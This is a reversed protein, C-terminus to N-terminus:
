HIAEGHRSGRQPILQDRASGRRVREAVCREAVERVRLTLKVSENYTDAGDAPTIAVTAVNTDATRHCYGELHREASGSSPVRWVEVKSSSANPGASWRLQYTVESATTTRSPDLGKSSIKLLDTQGSSDCAVTGTGNDVEDPDAALNTMM